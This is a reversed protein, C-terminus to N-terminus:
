ASRTRETALKLLSKYDLKGNPARGLESVTVLMRPAKFNALRAHVFNSLEELSPAIRTRPEVIACIKQGFRADPVGVVAADRVNPHTKLVEEVEEPFVKEGGTNICQSGRGLVSLTGDDNVTGWDGPMSWRRGEIVPFTKATKVPDRYYGMPILGGVALLGRERSGPLIRRGDETFLACEPGLTFKATQAECGPTSVSVGMGFAESSSYSDNLSANHLHKLLGLKNEHSWMAGSSGIYEVSSLDWRGPNAELAELMPGSFPLGVLSIRSVRLREVENWLEVADFKRSPLFAVTAGGCLASMSGMQGVAHMLPSAILSVRPPLMSLHAVLDDLSQITPLSLVPHTRRAYSILDGQRWMVGKPMGTTGGTYILLIDDDGRGWPSSVNGVPPQQVIHEYSAAWAPLAIPGEGRVIWCRIKPLRPRIRTVMELFARDFVLAEADANDLLYVLEEGGYRYNVNFPTLGVKLAAAVTCIYEPCNYFYAGVKSQQGLGANLLYQAIADADANFAQWDVVREGQIFAPALPRSRAIAQWIDSYTWETM